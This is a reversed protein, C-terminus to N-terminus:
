NFKISLLFEVFETVYDDNLEGEDTTKEMAVVFLTKGNLLYAKVQAGVDIDADTPSKTAHTRIVLEKDAIQKSVDLREVPNEKVGLIDEAKSFDSDAGDLEGYKYMTITYRLGKEKNIYEVTSSSRKIRDASATLLDDDAMAPKMTYSNSYEYGSPLSYQCSKYIKEYGDHVCEYKNAGCSTMFLCMLLTLGILVIIKNGIRNM